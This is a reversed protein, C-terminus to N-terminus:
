RFLSGLGKSGPDSPVESASGLVHSLTCGALSRPRQNAPNGPLLFLGKAQQKRSLVRPWESARQWPEKATPLTRRQGRGM